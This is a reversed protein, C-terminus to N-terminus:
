KTVSSLRITDASVTWDPSLIKTLGLFIYLTSKLPEEKQQKNIASEGTPTDEEDKAFVDYMVRSSTGLLHKHNKFVDHMFM